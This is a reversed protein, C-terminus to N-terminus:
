CQLIYIRLMEKHVISSFLYTLLWSLLFSFLCMWLVYVPLCFPTILVSSAGLCLGQISCQFWLCVSKAIESNSFIFYRYALRMRRNLGAYATQNVDLVVQFFKEERRPRGAGLFDKFNWGEVWVPFTM